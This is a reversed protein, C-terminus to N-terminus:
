HNKTTEISPKLIFPSTDHRSVSTFGILNFIILKPVRLATESLLYTIFLKDGDSYRASTFSGHFQLVGFWPSIAPYGKIIKLDSTYRKGSITMSGFSYNEIM